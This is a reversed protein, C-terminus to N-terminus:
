CSVDFMRADSGGQGVRFRVCKACKPCRALYAPADPTRFVRVYQGACTFRVGIWPNPTRGTGGAAPQIPGSRAHNPTPQPTM